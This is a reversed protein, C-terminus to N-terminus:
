GDLPHFKCCFGLTALAGPQCVEAKVMLVLADTLLMWMPVGVPFKNKRSAFYAGRRRQAAVSYSYSLSLAWPKVIPHKQHCPPSHRKCLSYLNFGCISVSMVLTVPGEARTGSSLGAMGLRSGIAARM